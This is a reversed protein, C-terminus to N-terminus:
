TMRKALRTAPTTTIIPKAAYAQLISTPVPRARHTASTHRASPNKTMVGSLGSSM